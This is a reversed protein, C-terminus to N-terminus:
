LPGTPARSRSGSYAERGCNCVRGARTYSSRSARCPKGDPVKVGIRCQAVIVESRLDPITHPQSTHDLVAFNSRTQVTSFDIEGLTSPYSVERSGFPRVLSSPRFAAAVGATTDSRIGARREEGRTPACTERPSM